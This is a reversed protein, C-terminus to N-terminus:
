RVAADILALVVRALHRADPHEGSQPALVFLAQERVRAWVEERSGRRGDTEGVDTEGLRSGGWGACTWSPGVGRFRGAARDAWVRSGTVLVRVRRGALGSM